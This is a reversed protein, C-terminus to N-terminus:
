KVYILMLGMIIVSPIVYCSLLIYQYNGIWYFWLVNSTAGVGYFVQTQASFRERYKQSVTQTIFYFSIQFSVMFGLKALFLGITAQWLDNSFITLITGLSAVLLNVLSITKLGFCDGFVLLIFMGIFIGSYSGTIAWNM